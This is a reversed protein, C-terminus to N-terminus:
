PKVRYSYEIGFTISYFKDADGFTHEEIPLIGTFELLGGPDVSNYLRKLEVEAAAVVATDGVGPKGQVYCLVVGVENFDSCYSEKSYYEPEFEYTMWVPDTPSEANNITDYVPIGAGAVLTRFTTRVYVASM